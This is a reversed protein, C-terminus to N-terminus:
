HFHYCGKTPELSGFGPQNGGTIICAVLDTQFRLRQKSTNVMELQRSSKLQFNTKDRFEFYVFGFKEDQRGFERQEELSSLSEKADSNRM